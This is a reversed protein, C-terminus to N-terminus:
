STCNSNKTDEKGAPIYNNGSTPAVNYKDLDQNLGENTGVISAQIQSAIPLVVFIIILSIIVIKLTNGM